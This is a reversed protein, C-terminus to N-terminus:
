PAGGTLLHGSSVPKILRPLCVDSLSFPLSERSRGLALLLVRGTPTRVRALRSDGTLKSQPEQFLLLGSLAVLMRSM